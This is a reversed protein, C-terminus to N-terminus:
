GLSVLHCLGDVGSLVKVRNKAFQEVASEGVCVYEPRFENIQKQLLAINTHASLGIVRFRDKHRRIVDLTNIGITGTSGLVVVNQIRKSM